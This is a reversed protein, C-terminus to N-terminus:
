RPRCPSRSSGARRRLAAARALRRPDRQELIEIAEERDRCVLVRRHRFARRGVQLTYAVDALERPTRPRSARLHRLLRETGAELATETRASLVLLQCPSPRTPPSRRPRSRWSSMPMSAASASRASGPAGRGARRAGSGASPTSTSPAAPSISGRTRGDRLAPQAPLVGHEVALVAKILGAVGAAADLHGINTKVSGLACFGKRDTSARSCRRRARRGRGSRGAAHRDRAGRRLHDVRGPGGGGGAGHRHREVQGNVSPATFSAKTPATTTPPSAASSPTSPTATPSRTPSGSSCWWAPAAGRWRATPARCRLRPLPRGAVDREGAAPLGRRAARGGDGRRGPGHRVPFAAPEPLGPLGGGALDLLRDAGHHEAGAPRAQVRGARDPLRQREPHPGPAPGRRRDPRPPLPPEPAPLSTM